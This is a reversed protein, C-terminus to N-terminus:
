VRKIAIRHSANNLYGQPNWNGPVMPQAVGDSDTARAWVEYYGIAPFKLIKKWHQWANKNAPPDLEASVWTSGYDISLEVKVISKDGAWAHGRITLQDKGKLLGGTKPYTIISKVPMAGIICMKDDTVFSGPQVPDCPVRYSPSEMKPGDHIKNRVVLKKLWKGSVSAPWGGVVLRLPHGHAVPIDKGNMSWALITEEKLAIDIPVGRSIVVKNLDGSLHIDAGYYGIYEADSKIGVYELVDKLRAGTWQACSIGGLQWQNGKTIPNFGARGNGGCEVVLQYTYPKFKSKLEALSITVSRAVSEGEITLTWNQPDIKEPIKGNNRIFMKDAPTIKDDLLHAPTEVNWPTDNLVIMEPHKSKMPDIPDFDELLLPKLGEPMREGNVLKSGILLGFTALTSKSIFGRRTFADFYGNQEVKKM